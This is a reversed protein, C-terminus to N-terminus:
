YLWRCVVHLEGPVVKVHIPHFVLASFTRIEVVKLLISAGAREDVSPAVRVDSGSPFAVYSVRLPIENGVRAFAAERGASLVRVECRGIRGCQGIEFYGPM